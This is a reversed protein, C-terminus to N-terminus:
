EVGNVVGMRGSFDQYSIQSPIGNAKRELSTWQILTGIGKRGFIVWDSDKLMIFAQKAVEISPLNEPLDLIYNDSAQLYFESM